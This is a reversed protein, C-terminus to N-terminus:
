GWIRIRKKQEIFGADKESIDFAYYFEDFHRVIVNVRIPPPSHRDKKLAQDRKEKREKYVWTKAYAIFFACLDKKWAIEDATKRSRLVDLCIAMAGFDALNEGLTLEGSINQGYYKQKDFEQILQSTKEKYIEVDESTWWPKYNGKEDFKRGEEDFGHSIEHAIVNGLGALNIIFDQELSFFPSNLFGLPVCLENAEQYYYANVAFCDNDWLSNDVGETLKKVEKLAGAYCMNLLNKLYLGENVEVGAFDDEFQQPFGMKLGMYTLKNIAILRSSESLWGLKLVRKKAFGKVIEYLKTSEKRITNFLKLNSEVYLKGVANECFEKCINFIYHDKSIPKQQGVLFKLNFDFYFTAYPEPLDELFSKYIMLKIMRKWVQISHKKIKSYIYKLLPPNECILRKIPHSEFLNFFYKMLPYDSVLSAYSMPNYVFEIKYNDEYDYLYKSIDRLFEIYVSAISEDGFAKCIKEIHKTYTKFVPGIHVIEAKILDLQPENLIVVYNQNNRSDKSINFEIPSEIGYMNLKGFVQFLEEYSDFATMQGLFDELISLDKFRGKQISEVFLRLKGTSKEKLLQIIDIRIAEDLEDFVSISVDNKPIKKNKLSDKNVYSYFDLAIGSM